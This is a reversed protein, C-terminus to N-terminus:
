PSPGARSSYQFRVPVSASAAYRVSKRIRMKAETLVNRQGVTMDVTFGGRARVGKVSGTQWLNPLAPLFDLYGNQSQLLMETVGATYGFNGDIQFPPHADFLNPYVGAGESYNTGEKEVPTLLNRM